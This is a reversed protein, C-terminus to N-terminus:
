RAPSGPASALRKLEDFWNVVVVFASPMAAGAPSDDKIVLFRRGDTSADYTRWIGPSAYSAKALTQPLGTHFESRSADVSVSTLRHEADFFVLEAGSRTWMPQTGGSTSVQWRTAADRAYPRVYVETPGSDDSQYALYAGNPSVEGNWEEFPTALLDEAAPAASGRSPGADLSLRVLDSKTVPRVEHLIVFKGDPTVSDALQTNASTTLRTDAAPGDVVRAYLNYVGTRASSFILQRGNPTWVPALDVDADFTVRTLTQRALDWTWIDNEQDRISLAIRAGDPSLRANEYARRPAPIATENGQRDVWLLSRKAGGGSGGPVFVLTGARTVAANM